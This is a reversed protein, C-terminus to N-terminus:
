LAVQTVVVFEQVDRPMGCRVAADALAEIFVFAYAPGSGSVATVCDMLKEDVREVKGSAELLTRLLAQM